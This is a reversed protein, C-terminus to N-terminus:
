SNIQTQIINKLRDMEEKSLENQLISILRNIAGFANKSYWDTDKRKNMKNSKASMSKMNSNSDMTNMKKHKRIEIFRGYTAFSVNLGRDDGKKFTSFSLSNLLDDSVRIDKSEITQRFIKMLYEGHQVLVQETFLLEIEKQSPDSMLKRIQILNVVGFRCM